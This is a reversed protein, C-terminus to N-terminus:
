APIREAHSALIPSREPVKSSRISSVVPTGRTGEPDGPEPVTASGHREM